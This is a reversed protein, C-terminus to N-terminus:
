VILGGDLPMVKGNFFDNEILAVIGAAIEEPKGLRRLPVERVIEKLSSETLARHTSATDTYGPALGAFRIGMPSLEKAWVTTLAEVGAKAAAYASQGANGAASVSSINIVVGRTRKLIMKEVVCRTIYFVSSLNIALVKDWAAPDHKEINAGLKILPASFLMGANNVLVQPSGFEDYYAEVKEEIRGADTLDCEMCYLSPHRDKLLQLGKTDIDVATVQAGLSFLKDILSSGLGGAGGTVIIKANSIQM